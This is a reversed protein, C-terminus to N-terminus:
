QKSSDYKITHVPVNVKHDQVGHTLRTNGAILHKHDTHTDHMVIPKTMAHGQEKSKKFQASVRDHKEKEIDPNGSIGRKDAADTNGMKDLNPTNHSIHTTSARKMASVYNTKKTLHALQKKVHDPTHPDDKLAQHQHDIEDHEEDHKPSVWTHGDVKQRPRLPPKLRLEQICYLKYSKM